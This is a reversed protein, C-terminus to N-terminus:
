RVGLRELVDVLDGFRDIVMDAGLAAVPTRPYGYSVAVVPLGASRAAAVDNDHDGVMIASGIDAELQEVVWAIHRGDPKRVPLTDGGAVAGFFRRLGLQTLVELTVREPKNTCLGLRLGQIHLKELTATVGPYLSHPDAGQSEYIGIFQDLVAPADDPDLDQGTAAFAKRILVPSGDGVMTRIQEVSVAPRGHIALLQNVATGIEPASDILTGDLDFIVTRIQPM